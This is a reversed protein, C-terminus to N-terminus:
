INDKLEKVYRAVADQWAPLKHFGQEELKDKNM